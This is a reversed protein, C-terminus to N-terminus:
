KMSESFGSNGSQSSQFRFCRIIEIAYEAKILSGKERGPPCWAITCRVTSLMVQVSCRFVSKIATIAPSDLVQWKEVWTSYWTFGISGLEAGGLNGPRSTDTQSSVHSRKGYHRCGLLLHGSGWVTIVVKVNNIGSHCFFFFDSWNQLFCSNFSHSRTKLPNFM